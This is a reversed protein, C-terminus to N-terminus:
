SCRKSELFKEADPEAEGYSRKKGSPHDGGQSLCWPHARGLKSGCRTRSLHWNQTRNGCHGNTATCQLTPAAPWVAPGADVVGSASPAHAVDLRLESCRRETAKSPDPVDRDKFRPFTGGRQWRRHFRMPEAKGTIAAGARQLRMQMRRRSPSLNAMSTAPSLCWSSGAEDTM